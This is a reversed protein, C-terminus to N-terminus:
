FIQLIILMWFFWLLIMMQIIWKLMKLLNNKFENWLMWRKKKYFYIWLIYLFLWFLFSSTIIEIIYDSNKIFNENSIEWKSIITFFFSTIFSLIFYLIYVFINLLKSKFDIITKINNVNKDAWLDIKALFNDIKNLWKILYFYYVWIFVISFLIIFIINM